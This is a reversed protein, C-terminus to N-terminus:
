PDGADYAARRDPGDRVLLADPDARSVVEKEILLKALATLMERKATLTERRIKATSARRRRRCTSSCHRAGQRSPGSGSPDPEDRVPDGHPPGARRTSGPSTTSRSVPPIRWEYVRAKSKGITM